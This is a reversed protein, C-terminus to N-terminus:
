SNTAAAWSISGCRRWDARAPISFGDQDAATLASSGILAYLTNSTTWQRPPPLGGHNRRETRGKGRRQQPVAPWRCAHRQPAGVRGVRPRFPVAHGTRGPRAAALVHLQSLLSPGRAPAIPVPFPLPLGAAGERPLTRGQAIPASRAVEGPPMVM